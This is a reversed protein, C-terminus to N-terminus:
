SHRQPYVPFFALTPSAEIKKVHRPLQREKENTNHDDQDDQEQAAETQQRLGVADGLLDNCTLAPYRRECGALDPAAQTVGGRWRFKLRQTDPVSIV